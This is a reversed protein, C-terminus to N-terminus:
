RRSRFLKQFFGTHQVPEPKTEPFPTGTLVCDMVTEFLPLEKAQEERLASMQNVMWATNVTSGAFAREQGISQAVTTRARRMARKVEIEQKGLVDAAQAASFGENCLLLVVSREERPLGSVLRRYSEAESFGTQRLPLDPQELLMPYATRSLWLRLDSPSRLLATTEEAARYVETMRTGVAASCLMSVAVWLNPATVSLLQRLGEPDGNHVQTIAEALTM